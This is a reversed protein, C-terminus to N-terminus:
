TDLRLLPEAPSLDDQVPAHEHSEQERRFATVLMARCREGRVQGRDCDYFTRALRSAMSTLGLQILLFITFYRYVVNILGRDQYRRASTYLRPHPLFTVQGFKGLRRAIMTAEGYFQFAQDVGGTSRLANTRLAM